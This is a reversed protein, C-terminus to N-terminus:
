KHERFISILLRLTALILFFALFATFINYLRHPYEASDPLTPKQVVVVYKLKKRAEIRSSEVSALAGTYVNLAFEAKTLLDSYKLNLEPLDQGSGSALKSQELKVQEKLAELKDKATILQAATPNLYSELTRVETELASIQADLQSVLTEQAVSKAEPQLVGYAAQFEAIAVKAESLRSEADSLQKEAFRIEQLAVNNGIENIFRDARALIVDLIDKAFAPDFGQVQITMIGSMEDLVVIIHDLYYAYFGEDSSWSALTAIPDWSGTEYHNRLNLQEDVHKMMDVSTIFQQFVYMDKLNTTPVGLMTLPSQISSSAVMEGGADRVYLSAVSEYRDAAFLAYYVVVLVLPVLLVRVYSTSLIRNSWEKAEPPLSLKTAM